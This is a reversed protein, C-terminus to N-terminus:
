QLGLEQDRATMEDLAKRRGSETKHRYAPVDEALVRRQTGVKRSAIRGDDLLQVETNPPSLDGRIAQERTM